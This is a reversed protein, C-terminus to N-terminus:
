SACTGVQFENKSAGFLRGMLLIVWNFALTLVVIQDSRIQDGILVEMIRFEECKVGICKKQWDPLHLISGM